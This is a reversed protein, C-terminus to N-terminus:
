TRCCAVRLPCCAVPLPCCAVRLPCCAVRLPCCAVRLPCCAVRLPYCICCASSLMCCAASLMREGAAGCGSASLDASVEQPPQVILAHRPRLTELLSLRVAHHTLPQLNCLAGRRARARMCRRTSARACKCGHHAPSRHTRWAGFRLPGRMGACACRGARSCRFRRTASRSGGRYFRRSGSCHQRCTCHSHSGASIYTAAHRPTSLDAGVEGCRGM